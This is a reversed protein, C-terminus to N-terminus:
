IEPAGRHRPTKLGDVRRQRRSWVDTRYRPPEGLDVCYKEPYGLESTSKWVPSCGCFVGRDQVCCTADYQADPGDM